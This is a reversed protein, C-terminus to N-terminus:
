EASMITDLMSDLRHPTRSVEALQNEGRGLVLMREGEPLSSRYSEVKKWKGFEQMFDRRVFPHSSPKIDKFMVWGGMRRVVDEIRDSIQPIEEVPRCTCDVVFRDDGVQKIYRGGGKCEPCDALPKGVIRRLVVDGPRAGDEMSVKQKLFRSAIMTVTDWAAIGEMEEASAETVVGARDLVDQLILKPAFGNSGKVEDIVRNLGRRIDRDALRALRAAFMELGEPSLETGMVEATAAM